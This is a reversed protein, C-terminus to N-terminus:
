YHLIGCKCVTHIDNINYNRTYVDPARMISYMKSVIAGCVIRLADRNWFCCPANIEGSINKRTTLLDLM